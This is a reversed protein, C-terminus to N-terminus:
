RDDAGRHAGARFIQIFAVRPTVATPAPGLVLLGDRGVEASTWFADRRVDSQGPDNLLRGNLLFDNVQKFPLREEDPWSIREPKRTSGAALFVNYTGPELRIKWVLEGNDQRTWDAYPRLLHWRGKEHAEGAANPRGWNAETRYRFDPDSWSSQQVIDPRGGVWGYRLTTGGESHAGFPEGLDSHWGRGPEQGHWHMPDDAHEGRKDRFNVQAVLAGEERPVNSPPNRRRPRYLARERPMAAFGRPHRRQTEFVSKMAPRPRPPDAVWPLVRNGYCVRWPSRVHGLRYSGDAIKGNGGCITNYICDNGLNV